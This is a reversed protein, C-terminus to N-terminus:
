ERLCGLDVGGHSGAHHDTRHRGTQRFVCVSFFNWHKRNLLGLLKFPNPPKTMAPKLTPIRSRLYGKIDMKPQREKTVAHELYASHAKEEDVHAM